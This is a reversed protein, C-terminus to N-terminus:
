QQLAAIFHVGERRKALCMRFISHLNTELLNKAEREKIMPTKAQIQCTDLCFFPTIKNHHLM